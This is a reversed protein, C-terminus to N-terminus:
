FQFMKNLSNYQVDNHLKLGSNDLRWVSTFINASKKNWTLLLPMRRDSASLFILLMISAISYDSVISSYSCIVYFHKLVLTLQSFCRLSSSWFSLLLLFPVNYPYTRLPSLVHSISLGNVSSLVLPLLLTPSVPLSRSLPSFRDLISLSGVFTWDACHFVSTSTLSLSTSLPRVVMTRIPSALIVSSWSPISITFTRGCPAPISLTVFRFATWFHRVRLTSSLSSVITSDQTLCKHGNINEPFVVVTLSSFRSSPGKYPLITGLTITFPSVTTFCPFKPTSREPFFSINFGASCSSACFRVHASM